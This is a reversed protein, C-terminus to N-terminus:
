TDEQKELPLLGESREQLVDGLRTTWGEGM